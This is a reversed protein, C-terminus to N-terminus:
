ASLELELPTRFRPIVGAGALWEGVRAAEADVAKTIESGVDELLRYVVEGTSRVSWGGIVRGDAWITPGANGNTDFLAKGHGGLFWARENWGMITSDLAPLLALWPGSPATPELDDPLAVGSGEELQVAVAEVAALAKKTDAMTWGTWWQLDRVTAPGFTRLWRHALEAQAKDTPWQELGGEVWRDMPAWRYLSSLWSGKPRGRIIRGEASLLFLLRTSVGV